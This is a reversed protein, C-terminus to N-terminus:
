YTQGDALEAYSLGAGEIAGRYNRTTLVLVSNGQEKIAKGFGIIPAIHGLSGLAPMIVNMLNRLSFQTRSPKGRTRTLCTIPVEDQGSDRYGSTYAGRRCGQIQLGGSAPWASHYGASRTSIRRIVQRM